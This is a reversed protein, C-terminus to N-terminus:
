RKNQFEFMKKIRCQVVLERKLTTGEEGALASPASIQSGIQLSFNHSTGGPPPEKEAREHYNRKIIHIHNSLIIGCNNWVARNIHREFERTKGLTRWLVCNMLPKCRKASTLKIRYEKQLIEPRISGNSYRRQENQLLPSTDRSGTVSWGCEALVTSILAKRRACPM